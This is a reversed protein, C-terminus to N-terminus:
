NLARRRPYFVAPCSALRVSAARGRRALSRARVHTSRHHPPREGTAAPAKGIGIGDLQSVSLPLRVPMNRNRPARAANKAGDPTPLVAPGRRRRSLRAVYMCTRPGDRGTGVGTAAAARARRPRCARHISRRAGPERISRWRQVARAQDSAAARAPRGSEYRPTKTRVRAAAGLSDQLGRVTPAATKVPAAAEALPQQRSAQRGRGPGSPRKQDGDGIRGRRAPATSRQDQELARRHMSRGRGAADQM